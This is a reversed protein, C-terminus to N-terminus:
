GQADPEDTDTLQPFSGVSSSLILSSLVHIVAAVILVILAFGVVARLFLHM